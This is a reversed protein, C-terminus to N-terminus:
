FSSAQLSRPCTRAAQLERHFKDECKTIDFHYLAITTKLPIKGAYLDRLTKKQAENLTENDGSLACCFHVADCREEADCNHGTAALTEEGIFRTQTFKGDVDIFGNYGVWWGLKSPAKQYWPEAVTGWNKYRHYNNVALLQPGSREVSTEHLTRYKIM